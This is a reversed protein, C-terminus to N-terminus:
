NALGVIARQGLDAYSTIRDGFILAVDDARTEAYNQVADFFFRNGSM